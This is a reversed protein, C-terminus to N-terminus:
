GSLDLAMLVDDVYAGDLMFEERLVGEVVFGCAEYLARAEPNSSLVRLRLRRAGRTTAAQVASQVLTRGVGRRRQAPDVLLGKVELVHANAEVPLSRGIAVYGALGGDVEAILVDCGAAWGALFPRPGPPRPSPTHTPAWLAHDFASLADEDAERAPRIV